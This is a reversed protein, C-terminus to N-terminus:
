KGDSDKGGQERCLKDNPALHHTTEWEEYRVFTGSYMVAKLHSVTMVTENSDIVAGVAHYCDPINHKCLLRCLEDRNSRINMASVAM